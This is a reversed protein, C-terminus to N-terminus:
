RLLDERGAQLYTKNVKHHRHMARLEKALHGLRGQLFDETEAQSNKLAQVEQPNLDAAGKVVAAVLTERQSIFKKLTDVDTPDVGRIRTDLDLLAQAFAASM